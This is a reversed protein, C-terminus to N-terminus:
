MSGSSDLALKRGGLDFQLERAFTAVHRAIARELEAFM